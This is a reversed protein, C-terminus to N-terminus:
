QGHVLRRPLRRGARRTRASKYRQDQAIEREAHATLAAQWRSAARVRWGWVALGLVLLAALGAAAVISTLEVM